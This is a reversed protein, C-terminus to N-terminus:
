TNLAQTNRDDELSGGSKKITDIMRDDSGLAIRKQPGSYELGKRRSRQDILNLIVM